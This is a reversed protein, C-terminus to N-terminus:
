VQIQIGDKFMKFASVVFYRNKALLFSWSKSVYGRYNEQSKGFIKAMQAENELLSKRIFFVQIEDLLLM